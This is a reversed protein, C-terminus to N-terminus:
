NKEREAKLNVEHTAKRAKAREIIHKPVEQSEKKYVTLIWLMQYGASSEGIYFLGRGKYNSKFHRICRIGDGYDQVKAPRPDEFGVTEYHDMVVILNAADKAPLEDFERGIIDDDFFDFERRM